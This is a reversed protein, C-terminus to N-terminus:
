EGLFTAEEGQEVRVKAQQEFWAIVDGFDLASISKNQGLAVQKLPKLSSIVLQSFFQLFSPDIQLGEPMTPQNQALWDVIQAPAIASVDMDTSANDHTNSLSMSQLIRLSYIAVRASFKEKSSLLAQDVAASETETLFNDPSLNPDTM